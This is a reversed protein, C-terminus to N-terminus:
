ITAEEYQRAAFKCKEEFAKQERIADRISKLVEPFKRQFHPILAQCEPTDVQRDRSFYKTLVGRIADPQKINQKRIRTLYGAGQMPNVSATATSTVSQQTYASQMRRKFAGLLAEEGQLAYIYQTRSKLKSNFEEEEIKFFSPMGELRGLNAINKIKRYNTKSLLRILNENPPFYSDAFFSYDFSVGESFEAGQFDVGELDLAAFSTTRISAAIFDAFILFSGTFEVNEIHAGIFSTSRLNAFRFDSDVITAGMLDADEMSVASATARRIYAGSCDANALCAGSLNIRYMFTNRANVGVLNAKSLSVNSLNAGELNSNIFSAGQLDADTFNAFKLNANDLKINTMITNSLIAYSLERGNLDYGKTFKIRLEEVIENVEPRDKNNAYVDIFQDEAGQQVLQKGKLEIHPIIYDFRQFAEKSIVNRITANFITFLFIAVVFLFSRIFSSIWVSAQIQIQNTGRQLVKRINRTQRSVLILDVVVLFFHFSTLWQSHYDAFRFQIFVLLLLPLSFISFRILSLLAWQGPYPVYRSAYNFLFPFITIQQGQPTQSLTFYTTLKQAHKELNTLLNFHFVVILMPALVYYLKLSLNLNIIPLNIISAPLFLTLDTTSAVSVMIYFLFLVFTIGLTRNIGSSTNISEQLQELTLSSNM